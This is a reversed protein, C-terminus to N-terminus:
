NTDAYMANTSAPDASLSMSRIIGRQYLRKEKKGKKRKKGGYMPMVNPLTHSLKPRQTYINKGKPRDM